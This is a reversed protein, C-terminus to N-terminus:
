RRKKRKSGKANKSSGTKPSGTKASGPKPSGPKPSGPKPSGPKADDPPPEPSSIMDSFGDSKAARKIYSAGLEVDCPVGLGQQLVVGYALQALGVEADAAERLGALAEDFSILEPSMGRAVWRGYKAPIYGGAASRKLWRCAEKLDRPTDAMNELHFIAYTGMAQFMGRAAARRFWRATVAPDDTKIVECYYMIALQMIREPNRAKVGELLPATEVDVTVKEESEDQYASYRIVPPLGAAAVMSLDHDFAERDEAMYLADSYDDTALVRELGAAAQDHGEDAARRYWSAAKLPDAELGRGNEFAWGLHYMAERDGAEAAEQLPNPSEHGSAMARAPRQLAIRAALALLTTMILSIM